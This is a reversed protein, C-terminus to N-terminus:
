RARDGIGAERAKANAFAVSKENIDVGLGGRAGFDKVAAIVIRGDGSGLDIVFDSPGVNALKLMAEVIKTPTAVDMAVSRPDHELQLPPAPQALACTAVLAVVAGLMRSTRMSLLM